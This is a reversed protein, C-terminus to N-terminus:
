TIFILNQNKSETLACVPYKLINLRPAKKHHIFFVYVNKDQHKDKVEEIIKLAEEVGYCYGFPKLEIVEM